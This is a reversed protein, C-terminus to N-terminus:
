QPNGPIARPHPETPVSGSLMFFVALARWSARATGTEVVLRDRFSFLPYGPMGRIDLRIRESLPGQPFPIEIEKVSSHCYSISLGMSASTAISGPYTLMPRVISPTDLM